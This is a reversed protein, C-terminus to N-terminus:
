PDIIIWGTNGRVITMNSGDLGRTQWVDDAVEFLGHRKLLKMQRWLSPNVTAPAPGAIWDLRDPDFVVKGDRNVIPLQELTAIFGRQAFEADQGNDAPLSARFKEQAAITAPSAPKIGFDPTQAFLFNMFSLSFVVILIKGFQLQRM